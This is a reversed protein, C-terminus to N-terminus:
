WGVARRSRPPEAASRRAGCFRCFRCFGQRGARSYPASCERSTRPLTTKRTATGRDTFTVLKPDGPVKHNLTGPVRLVRALELVPDLKCGRQAAISSLARFAVAMLNKIRVRVPEDTIYLLEKLLWYTHVGYGTYVNVSPPLGVAAILEMAAALTPPLSTAKHGTGGFDVDAFLGPLAIVDDAKGRSGRAPKEGLIGVGFYTNRSAGLKSAHKAAEDLASPNRLDFHDSKFATDAHCISLFGSNAQSYVTMLFSLAPSASGAVLGGTVDSSINSDILRSSSVDVDAGVGIRVGNDAMQSRAHDARRSVAALATHPSRDQGVHAAHAETGTTLVEPGLRLRYLSAM